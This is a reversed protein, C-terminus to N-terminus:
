PISNSPARWFTDEDFEEIELFSPSLFMEALNSLSLSAVDDPEGDFRFWIFCGERKRGYTFRGDISTDLHDAITDWEDYAADATRLRVRFFRSKTMKKQRVDFTLWPPLHRSGQTLLSRSM